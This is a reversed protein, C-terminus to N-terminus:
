AHASHVVSSMAAFGACRSTVKQRGGGPPACAACLVTDEVDKWFLKKRDYFGRFDQFQRLLEIPPQAGYRERAPMNVDDIFFVVKKNVPAGYRHWYSHLGNVNLM